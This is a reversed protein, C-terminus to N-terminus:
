NAKPDASVKTSIFTTVGSTGSAKVLMRVNYANNPTLGTLLCSNFTTQDSTSVGPTQLAYDDVAAQIVTGSGLTSGTRVEPTMSGFGGANTTHIRSNYKLEVIGSAPAVFPCGCPTTVGGTPAGFAASATTAASFQIGQSMAASTLDEIRQWLGTASNWRDISFGGIVSTDRMEGVMFGPDTLLDGPLLVRICGRLGGSKRADTWTATAALSTTGAPISWSGLAVWGGPATPGAPLGGGPTGPTVHVRSLWTSTNDGLAGDFIQVDVRDIRTQSPDATGVAGTGLATSVVAYTGSLTLREVIAPFPQITFNLGTAATVVGAGPIQTSAGVPPGALIGPRAKTFVNGSGAAGEALFALDHYRGVSSTDAPGSWTGGNPSAITYDTM